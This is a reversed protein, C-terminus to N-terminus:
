PWELAWGTAERAYERAIPLIAEKHYKYGWEEFKVQWFLAGEKQKDEQFGVVAVESGNVTVVVDYTQPTAWYGRRAVYKVARRPTNGAVGVSRTGPSHRANVSLVHHLRSSSRQHSGQEVAAVAESRRQLRLSM